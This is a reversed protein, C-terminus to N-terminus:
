RNFLFAANNILAWTLDQAATLRRNAAQQISQAVDGRLSVLAPDDIVPLETRALAAKLEELRPDAPLPRGEQVLLQRRKLLEADQERVYALLATKHADTRQAPPIAAITAVERPLGLDLPQPSDTALVRFKGLPYEGNSYRCLVKVTIAAGKDDIQIPKELQFRAWHPRREQGAVAWGKDNRDVNGNIANKVDFDTQNHDAAAGIFKVGMPKANSDAGTHVEAQFETVVFNGNGNLGPGFGALADDPLAELMFGTITTPAGKPIQITVAYDANGSSGEGLVTGDPQVKATISSGTVAVATPTLPRWQTWLRDVTLAKEWEAVKAPLQATYEKLAKDAAAIREKQAAEAEAKKKNFEPLYAAIDVNAKSIAQLRLKELESKKPVWAGESQALKAVLLTHDNEIGSWNELVAAIEAATAKRNLVRLYLKEILKKDDPEAAVLDAIANKPDGIAEAVAPGSLLSM